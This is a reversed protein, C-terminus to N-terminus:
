SSYFILSIKQRKQKQRQQLELNNVDYHGYKPINSFWNKFEKVRQKSIIIKHGYAGKLNVSLRYNFWIDLYKISERTIIFQRNVRFFKDPDVM